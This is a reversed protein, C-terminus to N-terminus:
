IDSIALPVRVTALIGKPGNGISFKGRMAHVREHINRLGIGGSAPDAALGKGDDEYLLVLHDKNKMLQLNVQSADAHKLTNQVLEQAIRYLGTEMESSLQAPLAYHDFTHKLGAASCSRDLMEQTAVALGAQALARPMLAHAIGRVERGVDSTIDLAEAMAREPPVEGTAAKAAMEELRFRLGAVQQGIGDHLERSIRARENDTAKLVGRLGAEREALLAADHRAKARRRQVQFLLAGGMTVLALGGLASVLWLKRHESERELEAIATRQALIEREKRETEFRAQAQALRAGMDASFTSDKLAAYQQHYLFTSDSNGLKAHLRALEILAQMQESRGDVQHGIQLGRHLLEAAEALHGQRTRTGGMGILSSAVGKRDGLAVRLALAEGYNAAAHHLQGQAMQIGALNNLQTSLEGRMDRSRFFDIASRYHSVARATDGLRAEVNALNGLSAALGAVDGIEERIKAAKEHTAMAEHLRGLNFQLIAINNLLTAEHAPPGIREYIALAKFDEELAQEFMYRAQHIIGLKNHVAAMGASDALQVRLALSLQLLSDAAHYNSHDIQLIALDNYAQAKGKAYNLKRALQLAAEGFMRASDPDARRYNYCLDSLKLVKATDPAMAAVAAAQGALSQAHAAWPLLTCLAPAWTWRKNWLRRMTTGAFIATRRGPIM